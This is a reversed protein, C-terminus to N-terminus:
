PEVYLFIEKGERSEKVRRLFGKRVLRLLAVAIQNYEYIFGKEALLKQIESVIRPQSFTGTDKLNLIRGQIGSPKDDIIKIPSEDHFGTKDKLTESSLFLDLLRSYTLSRYPEQLGIKEVIDKAKKIAYEINEDVIDDRLM